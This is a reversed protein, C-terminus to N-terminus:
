VNYAWYDFQLQSSILIQHPFEVSLSTQHIRRVRLTCCNSLEIVLFGWKLFIATSIWIASIEISRVDVHEARHLAWFLHNFHDVFDLDAETFSQLGLECIIPGTTGVDEASCGFLCKSNELWDIFLSKRGIIRPIMYTGKSSFWEPSPNERSFSTNSLDYSVEEISIAERSHGRCGHYLGKVVTKLTEFWWMEFDNGLAVVVHFHDGWHDSWFVLDM